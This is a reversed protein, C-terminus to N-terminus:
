KLLVMKRTQTFDKTILKYFYVGSSVAQGNNNLGRWRVPEVGEPTQVEDVLTRVLQGAVNYVKLSVHGREAITYSITTVPNFPNPFNQALSTLGAHEGADLCCIPVLTGLWRVIRDMHVTREPPWGPTWSKINHFSFGSMIFGVNQGQSNNTIQSIVAGGTTGAGHYEMQLEAPGLPELVDFDNILPCGGYAVLTDVGFADKFFGGATGVGLPSIGVGHNVHDGDVVNFNMFVTRLSIASSSTFSNLWENAVDDGSLYVGGSYWTLNNLFTFLLGTDDSKDIYESGDSFAARLDGANWIIQRYVPLIQQFVDVVRSAPHNGVASSPGRIDYRDVEHHICLQIFSWDFASQAGRFNMGDVYLVTGGRAYGAAPLITFEDPNEAALEIDSTQASPTPVPLAAYTWQNAPPASRAGFFFWATDGPV